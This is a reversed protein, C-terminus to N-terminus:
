LLDEPDGVAVSHRDENVCMGIHIEISGITGAFSTHKQLLKQGLDRIDSDHQRVHRTGAAEVFGRLLGGGNIGFGDGTVIGADSVEVKIGTDGGGSRFGRQERPADAFDSDGPDEVATVSGDFAVEGDVSKRAPVRERERGILEAGDFGVDRRKQPGGRGLLM